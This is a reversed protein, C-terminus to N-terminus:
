FVKHFECGINFIIDSYDRECLWVFDSIINSEHIAYHERKLFPSNSGGSVSNSHTQM